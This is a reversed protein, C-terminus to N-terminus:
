DRLPGLTLTQKPGIRRFGRVSLSHLYAGGQTTRAAQSGLPSELSEGSKLRGELADYGDCAALVRGSWTKELLGESTLKDHILRRLDDNV